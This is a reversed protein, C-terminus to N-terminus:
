FYIHLMHAFARKSLDHTKKIGGVASGIAFIITGIRYNHQREPLSILFAHVKYGCRIFIYADSDLLKPTELRVCVCLCARAFECVCVCVRARARSLVGVFARM